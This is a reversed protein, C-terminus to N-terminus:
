GEGDDDVIFSLPLEGNRIKREARVWEIARFYYRSSHKHRLLSEQVVWLKDPDNLDEDKHLLTAAALDEANEIAFHNSGWLSTADLTKLLAGIHNQYDLVLALREKEEMTLPREEPLTVPAAGGGTLFPAVARSLEDDREYLFITIPASAGNYSSAFVLAEAGFLPSALNLLLLFFNLLLLFFRVAIFYLSIGLLIWNCYRYFFIPISKCCM